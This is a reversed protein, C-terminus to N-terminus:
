NFKMFNHKAAIKSDFFVTINDMMGMEFGDDRFEYASIFISKGNEFVIEVDQPYKAKKLDYEVEAWYIKVEKIKQKIYGKWKIEKTVDWVISEKLIDTLSKEYISIGYQFFESGWIIGLISKDNFELDLGYDLSDFDKNFNWMPKNDRYDIEYYKVGILTRNVISNFKDEFDKKTM